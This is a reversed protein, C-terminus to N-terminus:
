QINYEPVQWFATVVERQVNFWELKGDRTPFQVIQKSPVITDLNYIIIVNGLRCNDLRDSEVFEINNASVPRSIWNHLTYKTFDRHYSNFYLTGLEAWIFPLQITCRGPSLPGICLPQTVMLETAHLVCNVNSSSKSSGTLFMSSM